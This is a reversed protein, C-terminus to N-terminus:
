KGLAGIVREALKNALQRREADSLPEVQGDSTVRAAPPVVGIFVDDKRIALSDQIGYMAEDVSAPPEPSNEVPARPMTNYLLAAAKAQKWAAEGDPGRAVRITVSVDPSATRYECVDGSENADSIPMGVIDAVVGRPVLTSVLAATGTTGTPQGGGKNDAQQSGAAGKRQAQERAPARGCATLALLVFLLAFHHPTESM